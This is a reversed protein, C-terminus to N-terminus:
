IADYLLPRTGWHISINYIFTQTYDNSSSYRYKQLFHVYNYIYTKKTVVNYIFKGICFYFIDQLVCEIFEKTVKKSFLRRAHRLYDSLAM